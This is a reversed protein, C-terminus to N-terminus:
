ARNLNMLCRYRGALYSNVGIREIQPYFMNKNESKPYFGFTIELTVQSTKTSILHQFQPFGSIM